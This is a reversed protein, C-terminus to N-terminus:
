DRLLKFCRRMCFVFLIAFILYFVGNFVGTDSHDFFLCAIGIIGLILTLLTFVIFLIIYVFRKTRTLTRKKAEIETTRRKDNVQQDRIEAM